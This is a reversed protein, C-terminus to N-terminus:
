EAIGIALAGAGDRVHGGGDAQDDLGPAVERAHDEQQEHDRVEDGEEVAGVQRRHHRDVQGVEQLVHRDARRAVDDQEDDDHREISMMRVPASAM